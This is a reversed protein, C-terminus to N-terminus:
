KKKKFIVISKCGEDNPMSEPIAVNNVMLILEYLCKKSEEKRELERRRMTLVVKVKKGDNVFEMLKNAKIDLDHKSINTTLYIEKLEVVKQKREKEKKKEKYLWKSYDDIRMIPPNINPNIEIIDLNLNNALKKADSLLMIKSDYEWKIHLDTETYDKPYSVRVEYNGRLEDNIRPETFQTNNKPKNNKGM